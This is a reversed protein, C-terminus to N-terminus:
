VRGRPAKIRCLELLTQLLFNVAGSSIGAVEGQKATVYLPIPQGAGDGPPAPTSLQKQAASM